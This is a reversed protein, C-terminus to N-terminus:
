MLNLPAYWWPQMRMACLSQIAFPLWIWGLIRRLEAKLGKINIELTEPSQYNAFHPWWRPVRRCYDLYDAGLKQSLYAEEAPVVGFVYILVPLIAGIAFVGSKFMLVQSVLVCLTGWYLPNRCVSYPGLDIVGKAKRGGIYLTAWLRIGLGGTFLAWGVGNLGWALLTDEAIRPASLLGLGWCTFISISTFISRRQYWFSSKISM